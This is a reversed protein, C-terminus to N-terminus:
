RAAHIGLHLGLVLSDLARQLPSRATSTEGAGGRPYERGYTDVPPGAVLPHEQEALLQEFGPPLDHASGLQRGRAIASQEAALKAEREAARQIREALDDVPPPVSAVRREQSPRRAKSSVLYGVLWLVAVAFIAAIWVIASSLKKIRPRPTLELESEKPEIPPTETEM